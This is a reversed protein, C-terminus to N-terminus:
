ELDAGDIRTIGGTDSIEFLRGPSKALGLGRWAIQQAPDGTLSIVRYPTFDVGENDSFRLRIEGSAKLTKALYLGSIKFTARGRLEISGTVVREIPRFGEDTFVSSDFRWLVPSASDGYWVEEDWNLAYEANWREGYGYTSFQCFQQTRLDYLYTGYNGLHIVYFHHGDWEFSFARILRNEEPRLRYPVLLISQALYPLRRGQYATLAVDQAAQGYRSAQSAYPVLVVAQSELGRNLGRQPALAFAGVVVGYQAATTM